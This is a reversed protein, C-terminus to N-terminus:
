KEKSKIICHVGWFMLACGMLLLVKSSNPFFRQQFSAASDLTLIQQLVSYCKNLGHLIIACLICCVGELRKSTNM